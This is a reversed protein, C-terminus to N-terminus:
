EENVEQGDHIRGLAAVSSVFCLKKVNSILCANVVNATGEINIKFMEQVEDRHFSVIAAAHYVQDVDQMAEELTIVDLIDGEVWHLDKDLFPVEKRHLAKVKHGKALLAKILHSGVLGTGGTVLIM